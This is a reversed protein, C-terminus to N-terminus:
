EKSQRYVFPDHGMQQLKSRENKAVRQNQYPGLRVRYFLGKDAVERAQTLAVIGQLALKARLSEADARNKFSAVQIYYESNDSTRAPAVGEPLDDPMVKEIDPLVEYYDFDTIPDRAVQAPADPQTTAQVPQDKARESDKLVSSLGRGIRANESQSGQFLLALVVLSVLIVLILGWPLEALRSSQKPPKKKPKQKIRRAQAM